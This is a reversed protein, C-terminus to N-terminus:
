DSGRLNQEPAAEATVSGQTRWSRAALIITRGIVEALAMLILAATWPAAGTIHHEVGFRAIANGGGNEAYLAFVMRAGTGAIWLAAAVGTAKGIVTGAENRFVNTTLACGCGLMAGVLGGAVVLVLDNGSTPIGRLYTIAAYVVIAVPWLLGFTTLKKGRLQRVVLAILLLNLAYDELSM